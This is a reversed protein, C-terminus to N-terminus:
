KHAELWRVSATLAQITKTEIVVSCQYERALDLYRNLDLAGTGLTLHDKAGDKADHMHMHRLSGSRELILPEDAGNICHNHGIDYTLGFVPSELLADLVEVQLPTYGSWNEVCIRIDAGGVAAQCADRFSTMSRIYHERYEDFLYVKRDPLTFYVGRPMHMNLVPVELEKALAITELATKRYAGAVLPNFDSVNMNEDLHITYTIGYQRAIRRMQAADMSQLQYQPLNMNLEVFDLGLERCLAACQDLTKTEILTPMGFRLM